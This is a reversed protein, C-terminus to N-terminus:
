YAHFLASSYWAQTARPTSVVKGQPLTPLLLNFTSPILSRHTLIPIFYSFHLPPNLPPVLSLDWLSNLQPCLKGLSGSSSRWPWFSPCPLERLLYCWLLGSASKM